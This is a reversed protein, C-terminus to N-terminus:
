VTTKSQSAALAQNLREVEEHHERAWQRGEAADCTYLATLAHRLVEQVCKEGDTTLETWSFHFVIWGAQQLARDRQNRYAVQEKTKEHFEHGDVEVAILPFECGIKVFHAAEMQNLLGIVFDLRYNQDGCTVERQCELRLREVDPSGGYTIAEWWVRFIAELPSENTTRMQARVLGYMFELYSRGAQIAVVDAARDIQQRVPEVETWDTKQEVM